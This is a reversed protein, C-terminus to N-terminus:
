LNCIFHTFFYKTFVCLADSGLLLNLKQAWFILIYWLFCLFAVKCDFHIPLTANKTIKIIYKLIKPEFTNIWQTPDIALNLRVQHTRTMCIWNWFGPGDSSAKFLVREVVLLEEWYKFLSGLYQQAIVGVLVLIPVMAHAMDLDMFPIWPAKLYLSSTM